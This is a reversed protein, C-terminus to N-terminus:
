TWVNKLLILISNLGRVYLDLWWEGNKYILFFNMANTKEVVIIEKFTQAGWWKQLSVHKWIWYDLLDYFYSSVNTYLINLELKTAEHNQTIM